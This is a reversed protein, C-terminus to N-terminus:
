FFPQGMTIQAALYKAHKRSTAQALTWLIPCEKIIMLPPLKYQDITVVKMDFKYVPESM